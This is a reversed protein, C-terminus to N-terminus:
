ELTFSFGIISDWRFSRWAKKEVDWVPCVEQNPEKVRDTKKEYSEVVKEQLTCLMDRTTGDKKNFTIRVNNARLLEVFWKRGKETNFPVRM